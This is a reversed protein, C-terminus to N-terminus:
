GIFSSTLTQSWLVLPITGRTIQGLSAAVCVEQRKRPILLQSLCLILILFLMILLFPKDTTILEWFNKVLLCREVKSSIKMLGLTVYISFVESEVIWLTIRWCISLGLNFYRLICCSFWLYWCTCQLCYGEICLCSVFFKRPSGLLFHDEKIESQGLPLSLVSHTGAQVSLCTLKELNVQRALSSALGMDTERSHLSPWECGGLVCHGEGRERSLLLLKVSSVSFHVRYGWM